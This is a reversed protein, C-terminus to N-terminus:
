MAPNVDVRARTKQQVRRAHRTQEVPLRGTIQMERTQHTYILM